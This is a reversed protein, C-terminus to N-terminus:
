EQSPGDSSRETWDHSDRRAVLFFQSVARPVDSRELLRPLEESVVFEYVATARSIPWKTPGPTQHSPFDSPWPNSANYGRERRSVRVQSAAESAHGNASLMESARGLNGRALFRDIECQASSIRM